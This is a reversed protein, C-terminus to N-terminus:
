CENIELKVNNNINNNSICNINENIQNNNSIVKDLYNKNYEKDKSYEQYIILKLFFNNM